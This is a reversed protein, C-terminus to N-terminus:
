ESLIGNEKLTRIFVDLDGLALVTSIEFNDLLANLLESKSCEKQKLINWMFLSTDTLVITNNMVKDSVIVNQGSVNDVWFGDNIHM